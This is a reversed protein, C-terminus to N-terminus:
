NLGHGQGSMGSSMAMSWAQRDGSLFSANWCAKILSGLIHVRALMIMVPQGLSM